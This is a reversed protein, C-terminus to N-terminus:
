EHPRTLGGNVGLVMGNLFGNEEATAFLVAAAVDEWSGAHGTPNKA